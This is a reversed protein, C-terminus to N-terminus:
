RITFFHTTMDMLTRNREAAARSGAPFRDLPRISQAAASKLPRSRYVRTSCQVHEDAHPTSTASVNMPRVTCFSSPISSVPADVRRHPPVITTHRRMYKHSGNKGTPANRTSQPPQPFDCTKGRYLYVFTAQFVLSVGCRARVARLPCPHVVGRIVANRRSAAGSGHTMEMGPFRSSAPPM